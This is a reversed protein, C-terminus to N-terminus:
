CHEIFLSCRYGMFDVDFCPIWVGRKGLFKIGFRDRLQLIERFVERHGDGAALPHFLGGQRHGELLYLQAAHVDSL